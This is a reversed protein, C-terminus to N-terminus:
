SQIYLVYFAYIVEGNGLLMQMVCLLCHIQSQINYSKNWTTTEYIDRCKPALTLPTYLCADDVYHHRAGRNNGRSTVTAEFTEQNAASPLTLVDM